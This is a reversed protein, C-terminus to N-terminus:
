AALLSSDRLRAHHNLGDLPVSGRGHPLPTKGSTFATRNSPRLLERQQDPSPAFPDAREGDVWTLVTRGVAYTGTPRPSELSANHELRLVGLFLAVALAAGFFARVVWKAIRKIGRGM